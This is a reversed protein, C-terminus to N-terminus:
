LSAEDMYDMHLTVEFTEVQNNNDWDLTVEGVSTPYCGYLVQNYEETSGDRALQVIEISYKYSAPADGAITSDIPAVSKQWAIFESRVNHDPDNYITINWDPYTRDGGLGGKKNLFSVAINEVTAAPFSGARCRYKISSDISPITIYFLNPRALDPVESLYTSLDSSM